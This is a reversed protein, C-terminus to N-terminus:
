RFRFQANVALSLSNRVRVMTMFGFFTLHGLRNSLKLGITPSVSAHKARPLAPVMTDLGRSREVRVVQVIPNFGTAVRNINLKSKVCGIPLTSM